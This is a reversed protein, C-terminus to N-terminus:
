SGNADRTEGCLLVEFQYAIQREPGETFANVARKRAPDNLWAMVRRIDAFYNARDIRMALVEKELDEYSLKPPEKLAM